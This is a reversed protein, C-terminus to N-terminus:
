TSYQREHIRPVGPFPNPPLMPSPKPLGEQFHVFNFSPSTAYHKSRSEKLGFPNWLDNYRKASVLLYCYIANTPTHHKGIGQTNFQEIIKGNRGDVLYAGSGDTSVTLLYKGQKGIRSIVKGVGQVQRLQRQQEDWVFLGNSQTGLYLKRGVSAVQTIAADPPMKGRM